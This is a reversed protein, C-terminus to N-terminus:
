KKAIAALGVRLVEIVAEDLSVEEENNKTMIKQHIVISRHIDIPVKRIRM